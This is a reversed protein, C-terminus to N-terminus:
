RWGMRVLEPERDWYQHKLAGGVHVILLTLTVWGFLSHWHVYQDHAQKQLAPELQQLPPFAPLNLLGWVKPAGPGPGHAKPHCSLIALGTLPMVFMLLYLLAHVAHAARQQWAPAALMAPPRHSLRWLVRLVSLVLVTFGSSIHLPVIVSKLPRPFAEMFFGLSVNFLIFLAISWHLLVAVRTYRVQGDVDAVTLTTM